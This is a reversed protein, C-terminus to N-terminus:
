REDLGMSTPTDVWLRASHWGITLAFDDGYIIHRPGASSKTLAVVDDRVIWWGVVGRFILFFRRLVKRYFFQLAKQVLRRLATLIPVPSRDAAAARDEAAELPKVVTSPVGEVLRTLWHRVEEGRYDVVVVKGDPVPVDLPVRDSSRQEDWRESFGDFWVVSLGEELAARIARRARRNGERTVGGFVVIWSSEPLHHEIDGLGIVREAM